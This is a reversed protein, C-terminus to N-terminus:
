VLSNPGLAHTTEPIGPPDQVNLEGGGHGTLQNAQPTCTVLSLQDAMIIMLPTWLENM